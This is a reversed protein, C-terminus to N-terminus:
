KSAFSVKEFFTPTFAEPIVICFIGAESSIRYIHKCYACFNRYVQSDLFIALLIHKNLESTFYPANMNGRLKEYEKKREAEKEEEDFSAIAAEVSAAAKYIYYNRKCQQLNDEEDDVVRYQRIATVLDTSTEGFAQSDYYALAIDEVVPKIVEELRTLVKEKLTEQDTIFETWEIIIFCTL